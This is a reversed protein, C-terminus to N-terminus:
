AYKNFYSREVVLLHTNSVIIRKYHGVNKNVLFNNTYFNNNYHLLSSYDLM